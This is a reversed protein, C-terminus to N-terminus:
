WNTPDSSATNDVFAGAQGSSTIYWYGNAASTMSAGTPVSATTTIARVGTAGILPNLPISSDAFNATTLATPYSAASGGTASRAYEIALVSRVAGLGGKASGEKASRNLDIFKPVAIAALIGIIAIVMVLEILTFGRTKKLDM